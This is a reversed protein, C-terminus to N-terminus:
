TPLVHYVMTYANYTHSVLKLILTNMIELGNHSQILDLVGQRVSPLYRYAQLYSEIEPFASEVYAIGNVLWGPPDRPLIHDKYVVGPVTSNKKILKGFNSPYKRKLDPPYNSSGPLLTSAALLSSPLVACALLCNKWFVLM